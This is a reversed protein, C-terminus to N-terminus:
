AALAATDEKTAKAWRRVEIDNFIEKAPAPLHLLSRDEFYIRVGGLNSTWVGRPDSCSWSWREYTKVILNDTNFDCDDIPVGIVPHSVSNLAVGDGHKPLFPAALAAGFWSLFIRRSFEGSREIMTM